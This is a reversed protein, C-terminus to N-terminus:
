APPETGVGNLKKLRAAASAAEKLSVRGATRGNLGIRVVGPKLERLYRPQGTYLGLFAKLRARDIEAPLAADLDEFIGVRLPRCARGSPFFVRPFTKVLIPLMEAELQQMNLHAM